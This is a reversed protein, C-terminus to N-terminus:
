LVMSWRQTEKRRKWLLKSTWGHTQRRQCNWTILPHLSGKWKCDKWAGLVSEQYIGPTSLFEKSSFAAEWWQSTVSFTLEGGFASPCWLRCHSSVSFVSRVPTLRSPESFKKEAPGREFSNLKSGLGCTHVFLLCTGLHGLHKPCVQVKRDLFLRVSNLHCSLPTNQILLKWKCM